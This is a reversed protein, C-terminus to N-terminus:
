GGVPREGAGRAQHVGARPHHLREPGHADATMWAVPENVGFPRDPLSAPRPLPM